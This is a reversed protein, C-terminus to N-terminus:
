DERYEPDDIGVDEVLHGTSLDLVLSTSHRPLQWKVDPKFSARLLAMRVFVRNDAVTKQMTVNDIAGGRAYVKVRDPNSFTSSALAVMDQFEGSSNAGSFHGMIGRKSAADYFVVGICNALAETTLTAPAQAMEYRDMYVIVNEGVLRERKETM